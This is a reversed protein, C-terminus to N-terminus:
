GRAGLALRAYPRNPTQPSVRLPRIRTAAALCTPQHATTATVLANNGSAGATAYEDASRGATVAAAIGEGVGLATDGVALGAAGVGLGSGAVGVGSGTGGTSCDGAAGSEAVGVGIGSGDSGVGVGVGSGSTWLSFSPGVIGRM